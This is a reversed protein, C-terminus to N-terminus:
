VPIDKSASIAESIFIDYNIEGGAVVGTADGSAGEVKKRYGASMKTSRRLDTDFKMGQGILFRRYAWSGLAEYKIMLYETVQPVFETIRAQVIAMTQAMILAEVELWLGDYLYKNDCAPNYTLARCLREKDNSQSYNRAVTIADADDLAM